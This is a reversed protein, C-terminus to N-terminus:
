FNMVDDTFIGTHDSGRNFQLPREREKKRKKFPNFLRRRQSYITEGINVAAWAKVKKKNCTRLAAKIIDADLKGLCAALSLVFPTFGDKTDENMLQKLKGFSSEIIETSGLATQELDKTQDTVFDLISGTFQDARPGVDLHQLTRELEEVTKNHLHGTRIEQRVIRGILLMDSMEKIMSESARVWGFQDLLEKLDAESKKVGELRHKVKQQHENEMNQLHVLIKSAWGTLEDLNMYRAKSRQSPPCLAAWKTLQLKQKMQAAKSAFEAWGLEEAEVALLNAIKHAIDHTVPIKRGETTQANQTYLRTAAVIDSGQDHCFQRYRGIKEESKKLVDYIIPGSTKELLELHLVHVDEFTLAKSKSLASAQVGLILLCKKAGIQISLDIMGIWDNSKQITTLKYYGVQLIWDRITTHSPMKRRLWFYCRM